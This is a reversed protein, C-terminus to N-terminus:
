VQHRAALVATVTPLDDPRDVDLLEDPDPRVLAAPPCARLLGRAGSDGTLDALAAFHHPAFAAPVGPRGDPHLTAAMDHQAALVVLRDLTAPSVLPMDALLVLLMRADAALAERAALAVSGGMGAEPSPNTVRHLDAPLWDPAQPGVIALVPAGLQRATALAWAGLPRGTCPADLKSGGFRTGLGAMLVAVLLDERAPM